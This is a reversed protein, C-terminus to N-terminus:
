FLFLISSSIVTVALMLDCWTSFCLHINRHYHNKLKIIMPRKHDVMIDRRSCPYKQWLWLLGLGCAYLYISFTTKFRLIKALWVGVKFATPAAGEGMSHTDIFGFMEDVMQSDDVPAQRKREANEIQEQKYRGEQRQRTEEEM